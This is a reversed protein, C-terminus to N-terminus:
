LLNSTVRRGQSPFFLGPSSVSQPTRRIGCAERGINGNEAGTVVSKM